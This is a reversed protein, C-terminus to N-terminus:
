MKFIVAQGTPLSLPNEPKSEFFEDVAKRAGPCSPFGYDDFIMFGGKEMREYLFECCDIVSRYIDVDIHVFGFKIDQRLDKFTEPILGKHFAVHRDGNVRRKVSEMSTDAFDGKSHLDLTPDTEPMGEFTDFLHLMKEKGNSSELLVKELLMATGGKYVGCECFDGKIASAQKALSYIIWCRDPSVLTYDIVQQYIPGFEKYGLWPSFVPNYFKADPINEYATKKRKYRVLDYGMLQLVGRVVKIFSKKM